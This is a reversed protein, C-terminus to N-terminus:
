YRTHNLLLLTAFFVCKILKGGFIPCIKFKAVSSRRLQALYQITQQRRIKDRRESKDVDWNSWVTQLVLAPFSCSLHGTDHKPYRKIIKKIRGM